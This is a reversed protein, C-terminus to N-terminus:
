AIKQFALAHHAYLEEVAELLLESVPLWSNWNDQPANAQLPRFHVCRNRLDYISRSVSKPTYSNRDLALKHAFRRCLDESITEFLQSIADDEKRRWGLHLEILSALHIAPKTVELADSLERMKPLPFLQEICRYIALFANDERSETLARALVHFPVKSTPDYVMNQLRQRAEPSWKIPVLSPSNLAIAIAARSINKDDSLLGSEKHIRYAHIPVLLQSIIMYDIKEIGDSQVPYFVYEKLREPLNAMSRFPIDLISALGTFLGANIPFGEMEGPTCSADIGVLILYTDGNFHAFILLTGPGTSLKSATDFEANKLWEKDLASTEICRKQNVIEPELIDGAAAALKAFLTKNANTM